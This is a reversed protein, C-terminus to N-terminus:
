FLDLAGANGHQVNSHAQDDILRRTSELRVTDGLSSKNLEPERFRRVLESIDMLSQHLYDLKQMGTLFDAETMDLHKFHAGILLEVQRVQAALEALHAGTRVTLPIDVTNNSM